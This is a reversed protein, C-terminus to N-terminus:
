ITGEAAAEGKIEVSPLVVTISGHVVEDHDDNKDDGSTLIKDETTNDTQSKSNSDEGGSDSPTQQQVRRTTPLPTRGNQTKKTAKNQPLKNVNAESLEETKIEAKVAEAKIAKGNNAKRRKPAPKPPTAETDADNDVNDDDGAGPSPTPSPTAPADGAATGAKTKRPKGSPKRPTKVVATNTRSDLGLKVKIQYFRKKAVAANKFGSDTAVADWDIDPQNNMNKIMNFFFMAESPSPDPFGSTNVGDTTAVDQTTADEAKVSM